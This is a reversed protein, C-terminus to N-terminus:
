TQPDPISGVVKLDACIEAPSKLMRECPFIAPILAGRWGFRVSSGTENDYDGTIVRTIIQNSDASDLSTGTKVPSNACTHLEM